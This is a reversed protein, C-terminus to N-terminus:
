VFVERIRKIYTNLMENEEMDTQDDSVKVGKVTREEIPKVNIKSYFGKFKKPPTSNSEMFDYFGYTKIYVGKYAEKATAVYEFEQNNQMCFSSSFKEEFKFRDGNNPQISYSYGVIELKGRKKKISFISYRHEISSRDQAKERYSIQVWKGVISVSRNRIRNNIAPFILSLFKLFGKAVEALVKEMDTGENHMEYMENVENVENAVNM